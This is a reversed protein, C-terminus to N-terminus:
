FEAQERSSRKSLEPEQTRVFETELDCSKLILPVALELSGAVLPLRSLGSLDPVRSTLLVSRCGANEGAKVDTISDGVMWSARLNLSHDGAARFLMGPKPKRCSCNVAMDHPCFYIQSIVAGSRAFEQQIRQHIHLLDEMKVRVTAIGRQNTVVFVQFGARNLSAVAKLAGPIFEIEHWARIYDGEPAKHNIVGDRDLFIARSALFNM